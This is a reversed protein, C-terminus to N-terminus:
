ALLTADHLARRNAEGTTEGTQYDQRIDDERLLNFIQSAQIINFQM